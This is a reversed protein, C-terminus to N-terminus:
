PRTGWGAQVRGLWGRVAAAFLAPEELPLYHGADGSLVFDARDYSGLADYVAAYGVIRDRRGALLCMPIRLPGPSGEDALHFGGARLEDLYADDSPEGDDLLAAVRRAVEATQRGVAVTLHDHWRAPVTDLWGPRPESPLVGTLDRQGPRIRFGSCVMMLGRAQPAMRRTLGAALFGGYSWGLVAFPGGGVEARVTDVVAGLVDDSRPEGAPSRGTGPLDVYIRRWGAGSPFVPEVTRAMARRALGFSPLVVLARGEGRDERHLRVPDAPWPPV